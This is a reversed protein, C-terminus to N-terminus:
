GALAVGLVVAAISALSSVGAYLGRAAPTSAKTHMYAGAGAILVTAMKVSFAINWPGSTSHRAVIVYNWVGTAVLLWFAPWSLRGFARAVKQTAGDGLGRVTPVLGALVFQGGVWVCAALVHLSLRVVTSLSALNAQDATALLATGM